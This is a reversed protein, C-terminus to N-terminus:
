VIPYSASTAVGCQNDKNRSMRIYGSEGWQGGWSNKVIYYGNGYGVALVGHDLSYPDCSDDDLIGGSYMQFNETADIGISIPGVSQIAKALADEDGQPIDKWSSLTAVSQYDDAHCDGDQATYQYDDESVIGKKQIYAFGYDMLGGGCGNNGEAQSCDVLQQESLSLLENKALFWQGELGGTTSFAWCSGCQGQDKVETVAGKDRWDVSAALPKNSKVFLSRVGTKKPLSKSTYIKSFEEFTMDAFKNVGKTFTTLGMDFKRNHTAVKELNSEWIARRKLNESPSYKKGHVQKYMNWEQNFEAKFALAASFCLCVLIIVSKM